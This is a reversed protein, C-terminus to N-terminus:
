IEFSSFYRSIKKCTHKRKYPEKILIRKAYEYKRKIFLVGMFKLRSILVCLSIPFQKKIVIEM